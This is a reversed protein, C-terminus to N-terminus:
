NGQEKIKFEESIVVLNSKTAKKWEKIVDKVFEPNQELWKPITAIYTAGQIIPQANILNINIEDM